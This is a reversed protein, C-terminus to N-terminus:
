QTTPERIWRATAEAFRRASAIAQLSDTEFYVESPTLDPLGDPYRTPIYYRDLLAAEQQWGIWDPADDPCPFDRVLAQISHGWPDAGVRVWAAKVAKEAAQQASFCAHAHLGDSRLVEAARLDETATAMWRLAQRHDESVSM